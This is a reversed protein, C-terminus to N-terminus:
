PTDPEKEEQTGASDPDFGHNQSPIIGHPPPRVGGAFAAADLQDIMGDDNLDAIALHGLGLEILEDVPIESLPGDGGGLAHLGCCDGDGGYLFYTQIFLFDPTDVLGNGSIDAHIPSPPCATDGTGYNTGWRNVYYAFDIIDVWRNDNLNGGILGNSTGTFSAVYAAGVIELGAGRDLRRALTHLEDRVLICDYDGCAVTLVVSSALGSSFTIEEELTEISGDCDYLELTICRTLAPESVDRLQVSVVLDNVANITVEQVYTADNGCDDTATWTVTTTGTPFPDGITLSPNDSREYTVDVDTDYDDDATAPTIAVLADCGGADANQNVDPPTDIFWPDATDVPVTVTVCSSSECGTTTNRALGYYATTTSPSVSLPNGTGVFTGGCSGTYWDITEGGGVSASIDASDGGCIWAPAVQGNTPTGPLPNVTVTVSACDSAGCTNEWRAYYTTSLTPATITVPNGSAVHTGGCSGTYWEVSDGSGGDATLAIQSYDGVCFDNHNSWASTPAVPLPLVTLTAPDSSVSGCDDSVECTIQAGDDFAPVNNLTLTDSDGGVEAGDQYWQYHLTGTGTAAVSFVATGDECVSVDAPHSAIVPDPCGAESITAAGTIILSYAQSGGDLSGKHTVSITYSNSGPSTVAVQEVNDTDNDGTTAPSSPSSRNLVWPYYTTAPSSKEIRLDLDNVLMKTTPNLLNGPPTGPPDTWCISVRLESTTGDTTAYLEFTQNNTLTQETIILPESVDDSITQAATLTNMLGWGYEYDPGDASGVEDATHLVLGKLTASRMDGETPHTDRWHEILVGLSGSVNPSSMSTGSLTTYDSNHDDDTSYLSIGNGSIDPKIRGDDPPGWSSFSSMSVSGPGSYGGSVDNVAAVSLINKAVGVTGICDWQGDPDRTATSWTWGSGPQWYYHGGGSGPGDDNRDNGASRCMLYYPNDRAIDDLEETYSTYLGFWNDETTSVTVDGFWFWEGYGYDYYWGTIYSYSHNSVLLGSGAASRIETEDSDWDWCDLAASPSMGKAANVVGSAIMTGAVHTSHYHTGGPSDIQVARGGFEQHSIRVGGADWIGLTVGSGTLGLGSSGGPLCEDTSISDAADANNTVYYKPVGNVFGQIEIVGGASERRVTLGKQVALRRAERPGIIVLEDAPSVSVPILGLWIAAAVTWPAMTMARSGTLKM